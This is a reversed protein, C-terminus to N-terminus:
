DGVDDGHSGRYSCQVLVRDAVLVGGEVRGRVVARSPRRAFLGDPEVCAGPHVVSVVDGDGRARLAFRHECPSATFRVSGPVVLGQVEVAEGQAEIAAACRAVEGVDLIVRAPAPQTAWVGILAVGVTAAAAVRAM